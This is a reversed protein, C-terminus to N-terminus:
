SPDSWLPCILFWHFQHQMQLPLMGFVVFNDSKSSAFIPSLLSAGGLASGTLRPAEGARDHKPVARLLDVVFPAVISVRGNASPVVPTLVTGIVFLCFNYWATHSPGIRLMWLLARYSLGSSRIVASLGLISLAMYFGDSVFGHFAVAPPAIGLLVVCLVAFLAPVFDPLLRFVWMIATAALTCLMFLAEQSPLIDKGALAFYLLCPTSLAAFWGITERMPVDLIKHQRPTVSSAADNFGMLRGNFSALFYERVLRNATLDSTAESPLTLVRAPTAASVRSVYFDMGIAAEEGLLGHRATATSGDSTHIEFEGDAIFYTAEANGGREYLIEGAKLTRDGVQSLFRAFDTKPCDRFLPLTQLMRAIEAFSPAPAVDAFDAPVTHPAHTDGSAREVYAADMLFNAARRTMAALWRMDVDSFTGSKKNLAQTVGIIDGNMTRLPVCLLSQTRYGTLDDVSANFRPDRSVDNIILGEGGHFVAGALGSTDPILIEQRLGGVSARSYLEGSASDWLFVTTREADIQEATTTLLQELIDDLSDLDRLAQTLEVLMQVSQRAETDLTRPTEGEAM